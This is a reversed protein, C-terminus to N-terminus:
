NRKRKKLSSKLLCDVELESLAKRVQKGSLKLSKGIEEETIPKHFKLLVEVVIMQEKTYFGNIVLRILDDLIAFEYGSSM